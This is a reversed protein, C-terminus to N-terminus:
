RVDEVRCRRGTTAGTSRRPAATQKAMFGSRRKELPHREPCAIESFGEISLNVSEHFCLMNISVIGPYVNSFDSAYNTPNYLPALHWFMRYGLSRILNILDRSKEVRDNEVYLVPKFRDITRRAGSIVEFEMGEVDVKLLKLRGLDLFQDLTVKPIKIGHEFNDVSIGGFNFEVDSRIDPILVCGTESSVAAQFCEVNTISNLAMNACLTQFLIRQPEFAYVRGSEGVLRSLVMTHTGVHAGVEVVVDDASCLQRFIEAESESYEGYREIAKGVYIDNKNYVVLGYRGRVVANFGGTDIVRSLM